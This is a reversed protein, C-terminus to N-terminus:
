GAVVKFKAVVNGSQFPITVTIVEGVTVDDANFYDADGMQEAEPVRFPPGGFPVQTKKDASMGYPGGTATQHRYAVPQGQSNMATPLTWAVDKITSVVTGGIYAKKQGPVVVIVADKVRIDPNPGDGAVQSQAATRAIVPAMFTIEPLESEVPNDWSDFSLWLPITSGPVPASPLRVRIPDSLGGIHTNAHPALDANTSFVMLSPQDLGAPDGAGGSNLTVPYKTTNVVTATLTATGDSNAVLVPDNVEVAARPPTVPEASRDYTGCGGVALLCVAVAASFLRHTGVM